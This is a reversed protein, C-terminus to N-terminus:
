EGVLVPHGDRWVPSLHGDHSSPESHDPTIAFPDLKTVERSAPATWGATGRAVFHAEVRDKGLRPSKDEVDRRSARRPAPAPHRSHLHSPGSGEASTVDHGPVRRLAQEDTGGFSRLGDSPGLATGM